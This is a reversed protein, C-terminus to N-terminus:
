KKLEKLENYIEEQRSLKPRTTLEIAILAQDHKTLLYPLVGDLIRALDKTNAVQVKYCSKIEARNRVLVKGVKFTRVVWDLMGKDTNVISLRANYNKGNKHPTASICGEGDILGALYAWDTAKM